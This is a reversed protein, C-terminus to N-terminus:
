KDNTVYLLFLIFYIFFFYRKIVFKSVLSFHNFYFSNFFLFVIVEFANVNEKGKGKRKTKKKNAMTVVIHWTTLNCM